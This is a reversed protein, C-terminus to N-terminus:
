GKFAFVDKAKALMLMVLVYIAIMILSWLPRQDIFFFWGSAGLIAMFVGLIRGGPSRKWLLFATLLSALGIVLMVTGVFNLNKYLLLDDSKDFSNKQVFAVIGVLTNLVGALAFIFTAFGAYSEQQALREDSVETEAM